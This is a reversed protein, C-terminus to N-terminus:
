PNSLNLEYGVLERFAEKLIEIKKKEDLAAGMKYHKKKIDTTGHLKGM